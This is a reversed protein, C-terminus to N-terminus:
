QKGDPFNKQEYNTIIKKVIKDYFTKPYLSYRIFNYAIIFFIFYFCVSPPM